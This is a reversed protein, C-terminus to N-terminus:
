AHVAVWGEFQWVGFPPLGTALQNQVVARAAYSCLIADLADANIRITNRAEDDLKLGQDVLYTAITLRNTEAEGGQGAYQEYPLEWQRLQAAPFAEVLTNAKRQDWPWIACNVNALLEICASAFPAGSRNGGSVTSRVNVRRGRWYSETVRLPKTFEFPIAAAVSAIFANATPFDRNNLALGNIVNLLTPHDAFQQGFFWYPISFPADIAAATFHGNSLHSVLRAFPNGPGPLQQVRQLRVLNLDAGHDEVEAVWVNSGRVNANWMQQNGSFDVGLYKSASKGNTVSM